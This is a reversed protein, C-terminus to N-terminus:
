DHAWVEVNTSRRWIGRNNKSKFMRVRNSNVAGAQALWPGAEPDLDGPRIMAIHGIGKPKPNRWSAVVPKGQNALAQGQELTVKRWGFRAGHKNLWRNTANANMEHGKNFGVPNGADDVWHPVEAGMARTVDWVFINCYTSRGRHAYRPNHGAAFQNLVQDYLAQSRSSADGRLPPKTPYSRRHETTGPAPTKGDYTQTLVAPISPISPMDWGFFRAPAAAAPKASGWPWRSTGNGAPKAPQAAAPKASGWPWMSTGSKAPKAPTPSAPVAAGAALIRVAGEPFKRAKTAVFLANHGFQDYPVQQPRWDYQKGAAFDRTYKEWEPRTPNRGFKRRFYVKTDAVHSANGVPNPVNGTLALLALKRAAPALGSWPTAQIDLFRKVNGMPVNTGPYTQTSTPRFKCEPNSFTSNCKAVFEKVSVWKAVPRLTQSYQSLFGAFSGWKPVQNRFFAYRNILAWLTGRNEPNDKGGAEGILLRATTILDDRTFQYRFPARGPINCVLVGLPVMPTTADARTAGASPTVPQVQNQWHGELEAELEAAAPDYENEAAAPDYENDAEASAPDYETEYENDAEASAPDYETEAAAPDFESEDDVEAAAPDYEADELEEGAELDVGEFLEPELEAAGPSDLELSGTLALNELEADTEPDMTGTWTM